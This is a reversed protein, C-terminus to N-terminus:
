QGAEQKLFERARFTSRVLNPRRLAIARQSHLAHVHVPKLRAVFSRKAEEHRALREHLPAFEASGGFPAYAHPPSVRGTAIARNLDRELTKGFKSTLDEIQEAQQSARLADLPAFVIGVVPLMHLWAVMPVKGAKAFLSKGKGKEPKEQSDVGFSVRLANFFM